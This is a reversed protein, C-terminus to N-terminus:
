HMKLKARWRDWRDEQTAWRSWDILHGDPDIIAWVLLNEACEHAETLTEYPGYARENTYDIVCYEV